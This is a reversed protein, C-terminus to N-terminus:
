VYTNDSKLLLYKNLSRKIEIIKLDTNEKTLKKCKEKAKDRSKEIEKNRSKVEKLEKAKEKNKEKWSNFKFLKKM